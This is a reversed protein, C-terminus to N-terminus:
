FISEKEPDLFSQVLIQGFCEEIGKMGSDLSSEISKKLEM